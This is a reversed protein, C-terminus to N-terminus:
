FIIPFTYPFGVGFYYKYATDRKATSWNPITDGSWLSWFTTEDAHLWPLAFTTDLLLMTDSGAIILSDSLRNLPYSGLKVNLRFTDTEVSWGSSQINVSDSDVATAIFVSPLSPAFRDSLSAAYTLDTLNLDVKLTNQALLLAPLFFIILYKKM